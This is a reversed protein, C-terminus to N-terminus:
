RKGLVALLTKGESRPMSEVRAIDEVMKIVRQILERGIEQHAMERGRFKVEVQVKDGRSIFDRIQEVRIGVMHDDTKPHLRVTKVKTKRVHVAKKSQEYKYKGYDMIKCVPPRVQPSVEVLDLGEAQAMRYAADTPVVGVMKGQSDILRVERIRIKDNIRPGTNQPMEDRQQM